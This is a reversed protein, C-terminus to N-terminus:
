QAVVVKAPRFVAGQRRYGAELVEVVTGPELGQDAAPVTYVAEHHAPDFMTGQAEMQELGYKALVRGLGSRTLEVGKTLAKAQGQAAPRGQAAALARDLNDAISLVDKLLAVQEAQAEAHALLKQRRRYGAMEAQLRQARERWDVEDGESSRYAQSREGTERIPQTAEKEGLEREGLEREGPDIEPDRVDAVSSAAKPGAEEARSQPYEPEESLLRPRDTVWAAPARESIETRRPAVPPRVVRVPIRYKTM